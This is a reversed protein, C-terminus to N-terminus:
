HVVLLRGTGGQRHGQLEYFYVGPGACAGRGDLGDWFVGHHGAPQYGANLVRVLRGGPDLIRVQIHDAASLEYSLHSGRATPNPAATLHLADVADWPPSSLDQSGAGGTLDENHWGRARLGTLRIGGGPSSFPCTSERARFRAVAHCGDASTAQGLGIADLWVVRGPAPVALFQGGIDRWLDGAAAGVYELEDGYSLQVSAGLLGGPNHIFTVRAEIEDGSPEVSLEASLGRQTAHCAPDDLPSGGGYNMALLILDEFDILNDTTPRANPSFDLTPGIDCIANYAPHGEGTSYCLSLTLVDLINVVASGGATFNGLWYCLSSDQSGLTAAAYNLVSDYAFAAYYEYERMAPHDILLELPGDYVHTWGSALADAPSSPLPPTSGADPPDDYEPYNGFGRRFLTMGAFDTTSPNSWSLDVSLDANHTIVATLNGVNDPPTTDVTVAAAPGLEVPIPANQCDRLIVETMAIHGIGDPSGVRRSVDIEFLTGSQAVAGCPVGLIACDVTFSGDPNQQWQAHTAGVASLYDGERISGLGDCLDLEESLTFTASFARLEFPDFRTIRFAVDEVCPNAQSIVEGPATPGVTTVDRTPPPSGRAPFGSLLALWSVILPQLRRM